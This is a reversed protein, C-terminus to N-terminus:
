LSIIDINKQSNNTKSFTFFFLVAGADAPVSNVLLFPFVVWHQFM